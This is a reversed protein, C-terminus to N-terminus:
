SPRGQVALSANSWAADGTLERRAGTPRSSRTAATARRRVRGRGHRARRARGRLRRARAVEGTPLPVRHRVKEVRRGETAPWLEDAEAETLDREVETRALGSGAKVTLTPPTARRRVRVEVPGDIALYGQRLRSGSGLELSSPVAPVLFKREIESAVVGDHARRATWAHGGGEGVGVEGGGGGGVREARGAELDVGGRTLVRTSSSVKSPRRCAAPRRRSSRASRRRRAEHEDVAVAGRRGPQRPAARAASARRGARRAREPRAHRSRVSSRASSGSTVIVDCPAALGAPEVPAALDDRPGLHVLLHGGVAVHHGLPQDLDRAHDPVVVVRSRDSM